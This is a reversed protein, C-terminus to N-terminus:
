ELTELARIRAARDREVKRCNDTQESTELARKMAVSDRHLKRGRNYQPRKRSFIHGCQCVLKRINVACGCNPCQRTVPM